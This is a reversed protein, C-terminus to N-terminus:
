FIYGFVCPDSLFHCKRIQLDELELTGQAVSGLSTNHSGVLRLQSIVSVFKKERSALQTITILLPPTVSKGLNKARNSIFNRM